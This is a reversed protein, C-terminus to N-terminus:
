KMLWKDNLIKLTRKMQSKSFFMTLHLITAKTTLMLKFTEKGNLSPLLKELQQLFIIDLHISKIVAWRSQRTCQKVLSLAENSDCSSCNIIMKRKAKTQLQNNKGIGMIQGSYELKNQGLLKRIEM